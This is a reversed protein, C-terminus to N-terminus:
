NTKVSKYDKVTAKYIIQANRKLNLKETLINQKTSNTQNSLSNKFTDIKGKLFKGNDM